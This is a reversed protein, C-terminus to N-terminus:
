TILNEKLSTLVEIKLIKKGEHLRRLYAEREKMKIKLLKPNITFEIFYLKELAEFFHEKKTGIQQWKPIEDWSLNNVERQVLFTLKLFYSYSEM